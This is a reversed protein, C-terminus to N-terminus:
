IGVIGAAERYGLAIYVQLIDGAFSWKCFDHTIDTTSLYECKVSLLNEWKTFM